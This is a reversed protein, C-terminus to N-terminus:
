PNAIILKHGSNVTFSAQPSLKLSRITVDTNLVINGSTIIVDTNEDPLKGCSWNAPNEWAMNTGGTWKSLYSILFAASTGKDTRCRYRYGYWSSPINILNLSSTSTGSYNVGNTIDNFNTGDTSQQWQYYSAGVDSSITASATPPCLAVPVVVNSSLTLMTAISNTVEVYYKGPSVPTYTSDGIITAVWVSDKYWKFTDNDLAGGASVALSGNFNHISINAQPSYYTSYKKGKAIYDQTFPVIEKFTFANYSLDIGKLSDLRNLSNPITGSLSNQFLDLSTLKAMNGISSPISDTFSNDELSIFALNPAKTLAAPFPVHSFVAHFSVYTLSVLNAFSEPLSTIGYDLFEIRQLATLNGFSSPINGQWGGGWLKISIIRDNSVGIGTWTNVPDHLNWSQGFQWPSVGYTSDYYDVLALSDQINVQAVIKSQKLFFLVIFFFLFKTKM